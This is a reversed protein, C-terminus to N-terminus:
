PSVYRTGFQRDFFEAAAENPAEIFLHGEDFDDSAPEISGDWAECFKVLAQLEESSVDWADWRPPNLDLLKIHM